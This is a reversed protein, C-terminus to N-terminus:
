VQQERKINEKVNKEHKKLEKIERRANRKKNRQLSKHSVDVGIVMKEVSDWVLDPVLDPLKKGYLCQDILWMGVIFSKKSLSGDKRLDIMSYIQSLIRAPLNSRTYIEYVVFNVMLDTDENFVSVLPLEFQTLDSNTKEPLSSNSRAFGNQYISPSSNTSSKNRLNKEIISIKEESHSQAPTILHKSSVMELFRNKNSVWIGEYRKKEESTIYGLDVHSKWPKNEDFKKIRKARSHLGIIYNSDNQPPNDIVSVSSNEHSLISVEENFSQKKDEQHLVKKLSKAKNFEWNDAHKKMTKYALKAPIKLFLDAKHSNNTPKEDSLELNSEFSPEIVDRDNKEESSHSEYPLLSNPENKNYDLNSRIHGDHETRNRKNKTDPNVGIFRSKMKEFFHYNLKDSDLDNLDYKPNNKKFKSSKTINSDDRLTTRLTTVPENTSNNNNLNTKQHYYSPLVNSQLVSYVPRINNMKEQGQKITVSSFKTDANIDNIPEQQSSKSKDNGSTSVSMSLSRITRRLINPSSVEVDNSDKGRSSLKTLESLSRSPSANTSSNTNSSTLIDKILTSITHSRKTRTVPTKTFSPGSLSSKDSSSINKPTKNEFTVTIDNPTTDRLNKFDHKLYVPTPQLSDNDSQLEEVDKLSKSSQQDNFENKSSSKEKYEFNTQLVPLGNFADSDTQSLPPPRRKLNQLSNRKLNIEPEKSSVESEPVTETFKKDQYKLSGEEGVITDKKILMEFNEMEHNKLQRSAILDTLRNIELAKEKEKASILQLKDEYIAETINDNNNLAKLDKNFGTNLNEYVNSISSGENEDSLILDSNKFKSLAEYAALSSLHLDKKTNNSIKPQLQKNNSVKTTKATSNNLNELHQSEARQKEKVFSAAAAQHQLGAAPLTKQKLSSKSLTEKNNNVSKIPKKYKSASPLAYKKYLEEVKTNKLEPNKKTYIEQTKKRTKPVNVNTKTKLHQKQPEAQTDGSGSVILNNQKIYLVSMAAQSALLANGKDPINNGVNSQKGSPQIVVGNHRAKSNKIGKFGLAKKGSYISNTDSNRVTM